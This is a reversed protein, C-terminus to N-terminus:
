RELEPEPEPEPVGAPEPKQRRFRSLGKKAAGGAQKATEKAKDLMVEAWAFETALVVLGLIIVVLGPGPVVLMVLGLGVLVLGVVLVAIRKASRGIFKLLETLSHM